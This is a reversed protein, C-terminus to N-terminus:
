SFIIIKLSMIHWLPIESSQIGAPNAQQPKTALQVESILWVPM